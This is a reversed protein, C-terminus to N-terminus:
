SSTGGSLEDWLRRFRDPVSDSRFVRVEYEGGELSVVTSEFTCDYVKYHNGDDAVLTRDTVLDHDDLTELRRYVTPLSLDLRSAIEKASRPEREVTALVRRATRDGITDLFEETRGEEAM